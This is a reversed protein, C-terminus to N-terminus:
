PAVYGPWKTPHEQRNLTYSYNENGVLLTRDGNLFFLVNDDGRLLLLSKGTEKFTLEYVVADPNKTTGKAIAWKGEKFNEGLGHFKFGAPQRTAPDQNLTLVLKKKLCEERVPWGLETGIERCPTRGRFIGFVGQEKISGADVLPTAESRGQTGSGSFVSVAVMLTILFTRKM